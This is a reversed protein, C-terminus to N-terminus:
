GDLTEVMVSDVSVAPVLDPEYGDDEFAGDLVSMAEEFADFVASDGAGCVLFFGDIAYEAEGPDEFGYESGMTELSALEPLAALFDDKGDFADAVGAAAASLYAANPQLVDPLEGVLWAAYDGGARMTDALDAPTAPRRDMDALATAVREENAACLDESATPGDYDDLVPVEELIGVEGYEPELHLCAAYADDNRDQFEETWEENWWGSGGMETDMCAEHAAWAETSAIQEEIWSRQDDPALEVCSKMGELYASQSWEDDSGTAEAICEEYPLMAEMEVLWEEMEARQDEPALSVCERMGLTYAAQSFEDEFSVHGEMCEEYPLMAEMSELDRLMEAQADEPLLPLCDRMAKAYAVSSWSDQPMADEFCEEYPGWEEDYWGGRDGDDWDGDGACAGFAFGGGDLIADAPDGCGSALKEDDSGPDSYDWLVDCSWSDGSACDEALASPDIAPMASETGVAGSSSNPTYGDNSEMALDMGGKAMDDDGMMEMPAGLIEDVAAPALLVDAVDLGDFAGSLAADLVVAMYEVVTEVPSLYWLGDIRRMVVFLGDVGMGPMADELCGNHLGTSRDPGGEGQLDALYDFAACTGRITLTADASASGSGEPLTLSGVVHLVVDSVVVKTREEDLVEETTGIELTIDLTPELEAVLEEVMDAMEDTDMEENITAVSENVEDFLGEFMPLHDLFVAMEDPAVPIVGQIPDEPDISPILVGTRLQALVSDVEADFDFGNVQDVVVQFVGSASDTGTPLGVTSGEYDVPPLDLLTRVYEFSTYLPSVFWRGREHVVMVFLESPIRVDLFDGSEYGAAEKALIENIEGLTISEDVAEAGERLNADMASPDVTVGLSGDVLYVKHVREHLADVRIDLDAVQLDIGALPNGGALAGEKQALEIVRKYLDIAHGVESPPLMAAAGVVDEAALAVALGNVAEGPSAAGIVSGESASRLSLVVVVVVVAAVVAGLLTWRRSGSARSAEDVHDPVATTDM